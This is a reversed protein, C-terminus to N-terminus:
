SSDKSVAPSRRSENAGVKQLSALLPQRGNPGGVRLGKVDWETFIADYMLPLLRANPGATFRRETQNNNQASAGNKM